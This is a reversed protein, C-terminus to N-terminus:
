RKEIKQTKITQKNRGMLQVLYVGKPLDGIYYDDGKAAVFTKVRKGLLNFVVVEGVADSQDRVSINDTAPNPFVAPEPQQANQARLVLASVLFFFVLLPQKM